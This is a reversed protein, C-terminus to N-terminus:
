CRAIGNSRSRCEYLRRNVDNAPSSFPAEIMWDALDRFVTAGRGTQQTGAPGTQRRLRIALRCRGCEILYWRLGVSGHRSQTPKGFNLAFWM